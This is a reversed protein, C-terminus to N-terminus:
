DTATITGIGGIRGGPCEYLNQMVTTALGQTVSATGTYQAFTPLPSALLSAIISAKLFTYFKNM